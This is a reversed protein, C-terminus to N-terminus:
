IRSAVFGTVLFVATLVCMTGGIFIAQSARSRGKLYTFPMALLMGVFLPLISFADVYADDGLCVHLYMWALTLVLTVCVTVGAGMLQDRRTVNPGYGHCRLKMTSAMETVGQTRVQPHLRADIAGALVDIVLQITRPQEALLAAFEDGYRERWPRPYLKLM